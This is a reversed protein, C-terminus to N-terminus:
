QLDGVELRSGETTRGRRLLARIRALLEAFVFPKVLYDDAGRDLGIVRDEPTDRATLVLVRTDARRSRLSELVHFGDRDPLMLDLLVVDFTADALRGLAQESTHEVSVDYGEDRLGDALADAVKPEDEVVLVRASASDM